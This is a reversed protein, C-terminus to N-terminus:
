GNRQPQQGLRFQDDDASLWGMRTRMGATGVYAVVGWDRLWVNRETTGLGAWHQGVTRGGAVPVWETRAPEHPQSQLGAIKATLGTVVTALGDDHDEALLDRLHEARREMRAIEVSHDDGPVIQKQRLIRQGAERLVLTEIASELRPLPIRFRCRTCTYYGGNNVGAGRHGYLIVDSERPSDKDLSASCHACYAVRWLLHRARGAGSTHSRSILAQQLRMWEEETLLPEDTFMIPQGHDDRVVVQTGNRTETTQGLLARSKLIHRVTTDHWRVQRTPEEDPRPQRASRQRHARLSTPIGDAELREAIKNLRVGAVAEAAMRQAVPALEPDQVLRFGKPGARESVYGFPVRGGGYKGNERLLRAAAMRRERIQEREFEAFVMLINAVMRGTSSGFDISDSVSIIAKGHDHCWRLLKTFDLLSRSLRDLKAVCLVDWTAIQHEDTLWPGLKPRLFPSVSGSVDLDEAIAVLTQGPASAAHKILERQREPSTTEDTVVSLRVAGLYRM